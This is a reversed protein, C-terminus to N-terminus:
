LRSSVPLFTERGMAGAVVEEPTWRMPITRNALWLRVQDDFHPSDTLGSQGQPIINAGRVGDPGLRIVMRFVPGSGHTFREGSLGPNAADVDFQDGPRPFFTLGMRPDGETIGEALPIRRPTISFQEILFSFMPNGSLFESLISEFRVGHRLGWIWDDPDDSGFGGRGPETPPSRLFALADRLSRMAIEHSSEIEPTTVDDFFVSEGRAPDYSGLMRPNGPGRGYVLLTFTQMRFTDGTAALSLAEPIGEDDLTQRLFRTFWAHFITTAVASAVDRDEETSYFTAVGSPTPFGAAQWARLRAEVDDIAAREATYIAALREDASGPAPSGAAQARAYEIERLLIPVWEEGLNSHHDGQIDQMEEFTARRNAIAERLRQEIRAARYGELWPGGIYYPDNFLDNDHTINAPDNNANLVFGRAPSLAQPWVDFPVACRDPDTAAAAEDVRLDTTLPISWGGYRTGDLLFRPDAGAIWRNTAPDRPLYNRCPVAHYATYVIDGAADAAVMSGGYGIAYRMAQRFEEVNRAAYFGSFLRSLVIGDFPGYDFSIASVVGDGDVDGPVIWEGMMNVANPPRTAGAPVPTGEISTIFRGDFTTYRVITETRGVSGLAPVNAIVYTEAVPILPRDESRFRSAVPLGDAGLVIQEAYWDTVDPYYATQSWAVQGNTGVGIGPVGPITAGLLRRGGPDGSLLATDLGVQWFLSPVSLQLHGDGALLSHGDGTGAASVAWANSGWGEGPKRRLHSVVDGLRAALRDLVGREPVHFSRDRRTRRIRPRPARTSRGTELGWGSSSSTRRPPAIQEMIERRLGAWRLDRDPFGSFLTDISALARTRTVDSTDFSTNFLVTASMAAVASRDWDHMLDVPRRAGLFPAALRLESPAPLRGNRVAEIYANVGEAYADYLAAEEETLAEVTRQTIFALGNMRMSIDIRLAAEGLLESLRGQGLRRALDMEFFRDRASVFGQVCYADRLTRAYIHPVFMETRVVIAEHELCPINDFRETEPVTDLLHRPGADGGADAASGPGDCAALLGLPLL